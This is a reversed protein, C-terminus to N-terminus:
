QAPCDDSTGGKKKCDEKTKTADLVKADDDTVWADPAVPARHTYGTLTTHHHTKPEKAGASVPSKYATVEPLPSQSACGALLLPVAVVFLTARM